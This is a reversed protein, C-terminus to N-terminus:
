CTRMSSANRSLVWRFYIVLLDCMHHLLPLMGTINPCLVFQNLTLTALNASHSASALAALVLSATNHQLKEVTQWVCPRSCCCSNTFYLSRQICAVGLLNTYPRSRQLLEQQKIAPEALHLNAWDAEFACASWSVSGPLGSWLWLWGACRWHGLSCGPSPDGPDARYLRLM